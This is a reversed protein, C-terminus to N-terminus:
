MAKFTPQDRASNVMKMQLNSAQFTQQKKPSSFEYEFRMAPKLAGGNEPFNHSMSQNNNFSVVSQNNNNPASDQSQFSRNIAAFQSLNM